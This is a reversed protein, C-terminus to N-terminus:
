GRFVAIQNRGAKKADYVASDARSLAGDLRTEGDKYQVVGVSVSFNIKQDNYTLVSESILKRLREGIIAAGEVDTEPLLAVFEEGGWRGFVDVNRLTNVCLTTVRQLVKDGASHGYTDNLKKFHDIDLMLLSLAHNYRNARLAEREALQGFERRNYAGTLPDTSALRLLEEEAKKNQSVDRFVAAYFRDSPGGLRMIQASLIFEEGDKRRGYIPRSRQGMLRTDPGSQGYEDIMVDHQMQFREPLLLDLRAGVAEEESYGFIHQAGKNFMVIAHAGDIVVVGEEARMLIEHSLQSLKGKKGQFLM